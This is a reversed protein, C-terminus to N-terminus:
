GESNLSRNFRITLGLFESYGRKEEGKERRGDLCFIIQGESFRKGKM